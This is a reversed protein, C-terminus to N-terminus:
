PWESTTLGHPSRSSSMPSPVPTPKASISREITSSTRCRIGESAWRRGIAAATTWHNHEIKAAEGAAVPELRERPAVVAPAVQSIPRTAAPRTAATVAVKRAPAPKEKAATKPASKVVAKPAAKAVKPSVTKKAPKIPKASPKKVPM